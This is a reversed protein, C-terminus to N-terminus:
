GRRAIVEDWLAELERAVIAPSFLREARARGITGQATAADPDELMALLACALADDDDVPVLTGEAGVLSEVEGVPTSVVPRGRAFAELLFMPMVEARSPLVAVRAGDLLREIEERPQPGLWTVGARETPAVDGPPGAVVLRASPMARQVRDWARLLVDVGKREGIEGAFCAVPPQDGAPTVDAPLDVPNPIVVVKTRPTVLREVVGASRPGLAVIADALRLVRRTLHPHRELFPEFEAGHLTIVVPLGLGKAELALAGERVFSGRESLHFQAVADHRTRPMKVVARLFLRASWLREDSDCSAVFDM